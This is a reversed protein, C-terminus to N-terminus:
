RGEGGVYRSNVWYFVGATWLIPIGSIIFVFTSCCCGRPMPALGALLDSFCAIVLNLSGERLGVRGAHGAHRGGVGQGISM